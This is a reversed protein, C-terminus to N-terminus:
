APAGLYAAVVAPNATIEAPTGTAIVRGFDLVTVRDCVSLVLSVDHEIMLVALGTEHALKRVLRGLEDTEIATLGAAPEDLLLVSPAAAVARAIAVLRRRGHPLRDPTVDLDGELGFERVAAAALPTLTPRGPRVLDAGYRVVDHEDCAVLLNERVTVDEFLELSQFSRGLGARARRTPSWGDIPTDDLVVTAGPDATVFGAVADIFTTKGAGNPGILGLVEGPRISLDVDDLAVVGGFRVTLGSVELASGSLEIEGAPLPGGPRAPRSRRARLRALSRVNSDAIGNPNAFLIFILLAGSLLDLATSAFGLSEIARGGIGGLAFTGAILAGSVYGVGGIVSIVLVQISAFGTFPAYNVTVSRFALLVGGLGAIGAALAFGYLKAGQVSVGLAAAARENGRVALLRLGSRSRRVNAVVLAAATLAVLVVLGYRGPHRLSDVPLGFLEPPDPRTGDFGGTLAANGLVMESVLVSLGFTLVALNIGRTRLAPLAVLAGLPVAAAAGTLLALAFPWDYTTALRGAAWAGFGALAMQALSLQGVFGTIVVVSLCVIATAMTITLATVWDDPATLLVAATTAVAAAVGPLWVRGRGVAPLRDLLTSRLPLSRGGVVMVVVILLFAFSRSVSVPTFKGFLLGDSSVVPGFVGKDELYRTLTSEVVGIGLAGALTWWFSRFSGLLAAALGRLVTFALAAVNLFLIPAVLVGAVAALAGGAAWNVMAIRDPSFGLAAAAVPNEAAADTAHGFRTWRYVAALGATAAVAIVILWLRDEGVTSGSGFLDRPTDPLPSRVPTGQAGWLENAVALALFFLALTAVVRVLPSAQRLRAMVLLHTLMGLTAPVAIALAWAAVPSWGRDGTARYYLFAGIM